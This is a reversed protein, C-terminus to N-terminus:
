PVCYHLREGVILPHQEQDELLNAQFVKECAEAQRYLDICCFSVIEFDWADDHFDMMAQMAHPIMDTWICVSVSFSVFSYFLVYYLLTCIVM